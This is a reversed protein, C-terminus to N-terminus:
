DGAASQGESLAILYFLCLYIFLYIFLVYEPLHIYGRELLMSSGYESHQYVVFLIKRFVVPM